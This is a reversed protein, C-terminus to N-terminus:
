FTWTAVKGGGSSQGLVVEGHKAPVDFVLWGEATEGNNLQVYDLAPTFGEAYADADYHHGRMQVYFDGWMSSVDNAQARVKVYVGLFLGREPRNYTDGRSFKVRAVQVRAAPKGTEADVLTATQGVKDVSPAPLSTTAVGEDPFTEGTSTAVPATTAVTAKSAGAGGGSCAALLLALAAALATPKPM